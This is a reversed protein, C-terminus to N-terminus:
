CRLMFDLPHKVFPIENEHSNTQNFNLSKNSQVWKLNLVLEKILM